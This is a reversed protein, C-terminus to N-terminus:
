LECEGLWPGDQLWVAPITVHLRPVRSGPAVVVTVMFKPHFVLPIKIVFTAVTPRFSDSDLRRLLLLVTVANMGGTKTDSKKDKFSPLTPVTLASKWTTRLGGLM